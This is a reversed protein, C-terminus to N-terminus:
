DKKPTKRFKSKKKNKQNNVYDTAIIGQSKTYSITTIDLHSDRNKIQEEFKNLFNNYYEIEHHLSARSVKLKRKLPSLELQSKYIDVLM